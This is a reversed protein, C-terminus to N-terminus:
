QGIVCNSLILYQGDSVSVYAQSDFNDNSLIDQQRSDPYICYYGGRDNTADLRYEGASLNVGIKFMAGDKTTDLSNQSCWEDFPYANASSLELFEGDYVTAISNYKFNENFIIDDGNADSNVSFYGSRGSSNLILYEGSPIDTGVKLVGPGYSTIAPAAAEPAEASQEPESPAPISIHKYIYDFDEQYINDVGDRIAYSYNFIGSQNVPIIHTVVNYDLSSIKQAYSAKLAPGDNFSSEEKSLNSVGTSSSLGDAVKSLLEPVGDAPTSSFDVANYTFMVIAPVTGSSDPYFYIFKGDDSVTKSWLSPVDFTINQFTEQNTGSEYDPAKSKSEIQENDATDTLAEKSSDSAKPQEKEKNGSSFAGVIGVLILIAGFAALIKIWFKSNNPKNPPSEIEPMDEKNEITEWDPEIYTDPKEAETGVPCGCNPCNLAKDSIEKGCEPCKILAM